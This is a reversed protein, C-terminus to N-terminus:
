PEEGARLLRGLNERRTALGVMGAGVGVVVLLTAAVGAISPLDIRLTAPLWPGAFATVNIGPEFLLATGVGLAAGVAVAATVPPIQEILTMALTQRPTTGMTRLYGFDRRRTRATLALAAAATVVAFLTSLAVSLRLGTSLGASFPEDALQDFVETRSIVRTSQSQSAITAEISERAEGGARIFLDTPKIPLPSAAELAALDAVIFRRELPVGPWQERIEAVEFVPTFPGLDLAFQDGLAPPGNPLWFTSAVVPIPNARTGSDAGPARDVLFDPLSPDAPTGAVVGEYRNGELALLDVMVPAVTSAQIPAAALARFGQASADIADVVSLDLRTSLASGDVGATVRYDAGVLHWTSSEQGEQISRSVISSFVAVAVAVLIVIMPLGAVADQGRVRHFGVFMVMRRRLSGLWALARMTVLYLRHTVIGAAVGLLVPALALLPDFEGQEGLRDGVLVRRRLLFMAGGAVAVVLVEAVLRRASAARIAARTLQLTGLDRRVMPVATLVIVTTSTAAVLTALRLSLAYDADPAVVLGLVFALAAAPASLVLAQALRSVILQPKSAGRNRLLIISRRERAIDLAALVAVVAAALVFLGSMALLLMSATITRREFYDEVIGPINTSVTRRNFEFGLLPPFNSELTRVDALLEGITAADVLTADVFYRWTFAWSALGTDRLLGRYDGPTTLGTAFIIVFDPNEVIRPRHLRQDGYWFEDSPDLPEILGSIEIALLYDLESLSTTHYLSDDPDPALILRQGVEVRLEALTEPTIALEYLQIEVSECDDGNTGRALPREIEEFPCDEGMQFLLDDRPGPLAGSLVRVHDEIGEQYRFRIFTDFPAADDGPYPSVKFQPSDFLFKHDRIIEQVSAPVERELFVDGASEIAMLPNDAFRPGIRGFTRLTLNREPPAADAVAAVLAERSTEEFLRPTTVIVLGALFVASFISAIVVIDSRLQKAMLSLGITPRGPRNPTRDAM